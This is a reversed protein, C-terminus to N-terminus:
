PCLTPHGCRDRRVRRLAASGMEEEAREGDDRLSRRGGTVQLGPRQQVAAAAAGAPGAEDLYQTGEEEGFGM